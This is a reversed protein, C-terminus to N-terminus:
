FFYFQTFNKIILFVVSLGNETELIDFGIFHQRVTCFTKNCGGKLSNQVRACCGNWILIDMIKRPEYETFTVMCVWICWSCEAQWSEPPTLRLQSLHYTLYYSYYYFHFRICALHESLGAQRCCAKGLILCECKPEYLYSWIKDCKAVNLAMSYQLLTDFTM